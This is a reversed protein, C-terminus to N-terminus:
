ATEACRTGPGGRFAPQSTRRRSRQPGRGSLARASSGRGCAIQHVPQLDDFSRRCGQLPVPGHCGATFDTFDSGIPEGECPQFVPEIGSQASLGDRSSISGTPKALPTANQMDLGRLLGAVIRGPSSREFPVRYGRRSGHSARGPFSARALAHACTSRAFEERLSVM